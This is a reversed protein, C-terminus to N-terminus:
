LLPAVLDEAWRKREALEENFIPAMRDRLSERATANDPFRTAAFATACLTEAAAILEAKTAITM